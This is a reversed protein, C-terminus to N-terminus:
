QNASMDSQTILKYEPAAIRISRVVQPKRLEAFGVELLRVGCSVV